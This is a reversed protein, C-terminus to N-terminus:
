QFNNTHQFQRKNFSTNRFQRSTHQYQRLLLRFQNIMLQMVKIPAIVKQSLM